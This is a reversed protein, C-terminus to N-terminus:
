LKLRAVSQPKTSDGFPVSEIWLMKECAQCVVRCWWCIGSSESDCAFWSLSCIFIFYTFLLLIFFFTLVRIHKDAFPCCVFRFFLYIYIYITLTFHWAFRLCACLHFWFVNPLPLPLPVPLLCFINRWIRKEFDCKLDYIQLVCVFVPTLCSLRYHSTPTTPRPTAPTHWLHYGLNTFFSSRLNPLPVPATLDNKWHMLRRGAVFVCHTHTLLHTHTHTSCM